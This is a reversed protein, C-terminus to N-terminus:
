IKEEKIYTPATKPSKGKKITHYFSYTMPEADSLIESAVIKGVFLTHTGADAVNTVEAEFYATSNETVIPAGTVGAKYSIREFKDFDRGNRFGFRGIFEMPAQQSLVSVSFFKSKSILEHTLNQKNICVAIAPPEASVQFVTNAIQGNLKEGYKSSVIFMGYNIKQLATLNM